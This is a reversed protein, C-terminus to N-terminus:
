FVKDRDMGVGSTHINLCKLDLDSRGWGELYLPMQFGSTGKAAHVGCYRRHTFGVPLATAISGPESSQAYVCVCCLQVYFFGRM